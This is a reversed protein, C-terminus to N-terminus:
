LMSYGQCLTMKVKQGERVGIIVEFMPIVMLLLVGRKGTQLPHVPAMGINSEPKGYSNSSECPEEYLKRREARLEQTQKVLFEQQKALQYQISRIEEIQSQYETIQTHTHFLNLKHPLKLRCSCLLTMARRHFLDRRGGLKMFEKSMIKLLLTNVINRLKSNGRGLMFHKEHEKSKKGFM